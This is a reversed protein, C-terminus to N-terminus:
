LYGECTAQIYKQARPQATSEVCPKSVSDTKTYSICGCTLYFTLYMMIIGAALAFCSDIRNNIASAWYETSPHLILSFGLFLLGIDGCNRLSSGWEQLEPVFHVISAKGNHPWPFVQNVSLGPQDLFSFVMVWAILACTWRSTLYCM